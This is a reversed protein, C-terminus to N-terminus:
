PQNELRGHTVISRPLDKHAGFSRMAEQIGVLALLVFGPVMLAQVLWVPWSLIASLEGSRWSALALAGTRWALVAGFAAVLLSGIADLAAIWSQRLHNTAFDVKVEGRMLHCWAFFYASALAAGMQVIEVDGSVQWAFLKRTVITIVLMVTMAIFVFGGALAGAKALATLWGDAPVFEAPVGSSSQLNGSM